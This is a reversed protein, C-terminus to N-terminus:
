LHTDASTGWLAVATASWFLIELGVEGFFFEQEEKQTQKELVSWASMM